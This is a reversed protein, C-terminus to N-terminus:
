LRPLLEAQALREARAPDRALTCESDFLMTPRTATEYRPWAPLGPHSPDGNRAFCAWATQLADALAHHATGGEGTIGPARDRGFILPLDLNHPAGMRGGRVPTQWLLRYAYVPAQSAQREGEVISDFGFRRDSAIGAYLMAPSLGPRASRYAAILEAAGGADVGCADAVYRPLEAESLAFIEPAQFGQLSTIEESTAGIMLPVGAASPPAGPTFPHEPLSDGDVVPAFQRLVGPAGERAAKFVALLAEKSVTQLAALDSIGLQKLARAAIEAARARPVARLFPGSQAIAKHFLGRAAPMALLTTVKMSGGSQGFITVNGPDGGFQAINDRVWELAVIIDRMGVNTALGHEPGGHDQLSLFGFINLRHNLSVVVVDQQAALNDGCWWGWSGAGSAFGGGHLWVMVPRKGTTAPTWVNLALCDEGYPLSGNEVGRHFDCNAENAPDHRLVPDLFPFLVQTAQTPFSNAEFVGDWPARPRPAMFRHPPTPAEAYPIGMFAQVPGVHVGRLSGTTTDIIGTM